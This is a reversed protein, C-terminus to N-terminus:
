TAELDSYKKSIKMRNSHSTGIFINQILNVKKYKIKFLDM